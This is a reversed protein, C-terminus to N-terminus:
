ALRGPGTVRYETMSRCIPASSVSHRNGFLFPFTRYPHYHNLRGSIRLALLSSARTNSSSWRDYLRYRLSISPKTGNQDLRWRMTDIFILIYCALHVLASSVACTRGVTLAPRVNLAKAINLPPQSLHRLQVLRRPTVETVSLCFSSFRWLESLPTM